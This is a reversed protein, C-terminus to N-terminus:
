ATKPPGHVRDALANAVLRAYLATLQLSHEAPEHPQRFHTSLVGHFRGARDVLPTSQVSRFGATMAIPRHQSFLPDSLVDAIVIQRHSAAARGCASEQDEVVSFHELFEREFGRQGAIRLAKTRPHPLQINGFDADVLEIAGALAGALLPGLRQGGDFGRALAYIRTVAPADRAQARESAAVRQVSDAADEFGVSRLRSASGDHIAAAREHLATLIPWRDSSVDGVAM